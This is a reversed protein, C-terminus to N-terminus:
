IVKSSRNRNEYRSPKFSAGRWTARFLDLRRQFLTTLLKKPLAVTYLFVLTILLELGKLNRQAFWIRNRTMYYSKLPSDKGVSMSEKHYVLAPGCYYIPFGAAKIRACWDYEEYYLFFAEEMTGVDKIVQSPVLMAAGHIFSTPRVDSYQGSDLEGFGLSRNRLTFRSLDTAGAYQVVGQPDYYQIRPSMMGLNPCHKWYQVLHSLFDPEVEVDNNIFLVAEGKCHPLGLNNGGAFGLNIESRIVTAEPMAAQLRDTDDVASANDVVIVEYNEYDIKSISDLFQLTLEIQNFQVTLISILPEAM